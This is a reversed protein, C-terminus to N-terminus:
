AAVEMMMARGGETVNTLTREMKDNSTAIRVSTARLDALEERLRRLENILSADSKQDTRQVNVAEGPSLALNFLKSDPPGSGGVEFGGGTAFKLQDAAMMTNALDIGQTNVIDMFRPQYTTAEDYLGSFRPDNANTQGVASHALIWSMAANGTGGAAPTTTNTSPTSSTPFGGVSVVGAGAAQANASQLAAIAERVSVVSANVQILGSVSNELAELQKGAIDVQRDATDGADDVAGRVLAVDRLYDITSTARDHSASTFAEGEAQLRGMADADGLKAQAATAMFTDRTTAYRTVLDTGAITASLSASFARLSDSLGKFKDKTAQLANQEDQYSKTLVERAASVKAAADQAAWIGQQYGQQDPDKIAKLAMARRLLTAETTKGQADLLDAYMSSRDNALAQADAAAQAADQLGWLSQLLPVLSADLKEVADKEADRSKAL